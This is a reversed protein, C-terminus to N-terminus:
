QGGEKGFIKDQETVTNWKEGKREYEKRQEKRNGKSNRKRKSRM